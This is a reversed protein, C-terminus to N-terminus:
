ILTPASYLYPCCARAHMRPSSSFLADVDVCSSSINFLYAFGPLVNFFTSHFPVELLNVIAAEHYLLLYSTIPDVSNALHKRLHPFVM